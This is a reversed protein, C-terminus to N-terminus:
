GRSGLGRVVLAAADMALRLSTMLDSGGLRHALYTGTACDGAGTTDVVDAGRAMVAVVDDGRRAMAGRSGRTIVVERWRRSLSVLAADIDDTGALVLAEEENAFLMTAEEVAAQFVSPGVSQLPGVSCVDVSSTAGRQAAAALLRPVVARTDEDLVTYGSVHLHVLSEDIVEAVHEFSLSGNVGRETMMAREGGHSVLSVVVGTSGEVLALHALVGAEELDRGVIQSAADRGAVGAFVVEVDDAGAQRLAVALNAASGGRGVRVRAPTDSTPALPALPRVVVDLMADGVIVVRRTV